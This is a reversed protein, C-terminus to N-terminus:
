YEGNNEPNKFDVENVRVLTVQHKEMDDSITDNLPLVKDTLEIIENNIKNRKEIFQTINRMHKAGEVEFSSVHTEAEKIQIEIHDRENTLKDKNEEWNPPYDYNMSNTLDSIKLERAFDFNNYLNQNDLAILETIIHSKMETIKNHELEIMINNRRNKKYLECLQVMSKYMSIKLDSMLIHEKEIAMNIKYLTMRLSFIRKTLEDRELRRKLMNRTEQNIIQLTPATNAM